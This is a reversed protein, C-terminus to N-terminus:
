AIMAVCSRTISRHERDGHLLAPHARNKIKIWHKFRGACDGHDLRKSVIGELNMPVARFLVDGIDSGRSHIRIGFGCCAPHMRNKVKIWSRSRGPFTDAERRKSVIGEFCLACAHCFAREGDAELYENLVIGYHRSGKLLKALKSKREDLTLQRLDKDNL